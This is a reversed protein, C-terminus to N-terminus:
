AKQDTYDTLVSNELKYKTALTKLYGNEALKELEANVKATLDSGLKFGIAYYEVAIEYGENIVLDPYNAIIAEALLIDVIAYDANNGNLRTIAEMQSVAGTNNVTIGETEAISDALSEGASGSEFTISKENFDANSSVAPTSSKRLICQANQMYNYSFDVSQNRPTDVGNIKDSGNSTFGNWICDISGGNLEVYKNSWDILKFRVKYGLNTFVTKALETDFGVLEGDEMYNMPAYDTYGVTVYKEQEKCGVMGVMATLGLVLCLIMTLLKKM